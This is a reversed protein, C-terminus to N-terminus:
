IRTASIFRQEASPMASMTRTVQPRRPFPLFAERHLQAIVGILDTM